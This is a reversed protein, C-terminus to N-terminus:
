ENQFSGLKHCKRNVRIEACWTGSPRQWIGKFRSKGGRGRKNFTNQAETCIRLNHRRYDLSDGNRHDVRFGTPPRMLHDHMTLQGCTAGVIHRIAYCFKEKRGGYRSFWKYKSLEHFDEDDVLANFGKTLPILM